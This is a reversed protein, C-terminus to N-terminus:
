LRHSHRVLSLITITMMKFFRYFIMLKIEEGICAAVASKDRDAAVYKIYLNLYASFGKTGEDKFVVAKSPNSNNRETLM